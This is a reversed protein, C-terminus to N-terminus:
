GALTPTSGIASAGAAEAEPLLDAAAPLNDVSEGLVDAGVVGCRAQSIIVDGAGALGDLRVHVANVTIKTSGAAPNDATTQENLTVSGIGPAPIVTNAPPNADVPVGAVNANALGSTGTSGSENSLCSSNIVSATVTDDAVNAGAVEAQSSVSGGPGTTGQSAVSLVDASAAGPISLGAVQNQLTGGTVPLTVEPTPPLTVTGVVPVTVQASAGQAGGGDAEVDASATGSMAVAIAAAGVLAVACNRIRHM